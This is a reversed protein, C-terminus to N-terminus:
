IFIIYLNSLTKFFKLCMLMSIFVDNKCFDKLIDLSMQNKQEAIKSLQKYKPNLRFKKTMQTLIINVKKIKNKLDFYINSNINNNTRKNTKNNENRLNRKSKLLQKKTEREYNKQIFNIAEKEKFYYYNSNTKYFIGSTKLASIISSKADDSYKCGNAKRFTSIKDKLNYYLTDISVPESKDIMIKIISGPLTNTAYKLNDEINSPFNYSIERLLISNCNEISNNLKDIMSYNQNDSITKHDQISDSFLFEFHKESSYDEFPFRKDLYNDENENMFDGFFLNETDMLELRALYQPPTSEM